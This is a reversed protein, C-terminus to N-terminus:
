GAVMGQCFRSMKVRRKKEFGCHSTCMWAYLEVYLSVDVRAVNKNETSSTDDSQRMPTAPRGNFALVSAQQLVPRVFPIGLDLMAGFVVAAREEGRPLSEEALSIPDGAHMEVNFGPEDAFDFSVHSSPLPLPVLSVQELPPARARRLGPEVRRLLWPRRAVRFHRPALALVVMALIGPVTEPKLQLPHLGRRFPVRGLKLDTFRPKPCPLPAAM